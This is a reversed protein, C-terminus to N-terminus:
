RKGSEPADTRVDVVEHADWQTRVVADPPRFTLCLLFAALRTRRAPRTDRTSIGAVANECRGVSSSGGILSGSRPTGAAGFGLTGKLEANERLSISADRFGSIRFREMFARRSTAHCIRWRKHAGAAGTAGPRAPGRSMGTQILQYSCSSIACSYSSISLRFCTAALAPPSASRSSRNLACAAFSRWTESPEARSPFTSRWNLKEPDAPGCRAGLVPVM